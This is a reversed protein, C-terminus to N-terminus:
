VQGLWVERGILQRKVAAALLEAQVEMRLAPDAPDPPERHRIWVVSWQDDDRVPGVPTNLPASLMRAAVGSGFEAARVTRLEVAGRARDAIEQPQLGDETACSIVERAASETPVRCSEVSVISWDLWHGAVTEAMSPDDVIQAKLKEYAGRWAMLTTTRRRHGDIRGADIEATADKIAEEVLRDLETVDPAVEGVLEAAALWSLVREAESEWFRRCFSDVRLADQFGAPLRAPRSPVTAEGLAVARRLHSEWESLTISRADLWARLDEGAELKRQRRFSEAARRVDGDSSSGKGDREVGEGSWRVLADWSGHSIGAWVLDEYSVTHGGMKVLPGRPLSGM